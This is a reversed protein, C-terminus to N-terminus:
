ELLAPEEQDDKVLIEGSTNVWVLREVSEIGNSMRLLYRGPYVKPIGADDFLQLTKRSLEFSVIRSEGARIHIREFGFLQELLKSAPESRPIDKPVFSALLVEDGARKGVNAISVSLNFNGCYYYPDETDIMEQCTVPHVVMDKLEFRTLPNLGYGFRFLPEGTHYRYTRGPPRGMGFNVMNLENVISGKYWTVPLKGWANEELGFLAEPLAMGAYRGPYGASVIASVSDVVEELAVMGGHLLVLVINPNVQALRQILDVQIDPLRIDPRDIGEDEITQNLGGLFVVVDSESAVQLAAKFGDTGNGFVPCGTSRITKGGHKATVNSFGEFFSTVCGNNSDDRCIEGTTGIMVKRDNVHPGIVAVTRSPDLPVISDENKLLVFGQTTAEKALAVHPDSQVVEPPVHWFPQDEIPDFLGLRFRIELTNRVAQDVAAESVFGMRVAEPLHTIYKGGTAWPGGGPWAASDVDCGAQIAVAVTEKWDQTYNHYNVFDALAGSDSVVYGLFGWERRLVRKLLYENACSPVGNIRNYSCMIGAAGGQQVSMRFATLYTSALDYLSIKANISHRSITGYSPSWTGNPTWHQGELSNADFHKLTTVAQLYRPDASNNQMGLTIM